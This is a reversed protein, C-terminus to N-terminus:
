TQDGTDIQSAWAREASFWDVLARLGAEFTTQAEWGLLQRARTVDAWTAAVDAPQTPRYEIVASRGTLREILAIADNLALPRDSGLNVVAYGLPRLAAVVGHAIDDVYTFDRRQTGDGYVTIPRGEGIRQVFRFLSMEPRGAPGYVTFFRLVSVDLGYLYHYTHCLSEAAKKSAAYPSRPRDTDADERFPMPTHAGYLSSTSALVFKPVGHRRCLEVLNLTGTVNTDYYLWPDAVSQSVGARAALNLVADFAPRASWLASLEPLRAVDGRQFTFGPRRMLRELRWSKLRVDYADNLNDLGTVTHGGDLLLEVTRAAIFGAAGTVLVHM